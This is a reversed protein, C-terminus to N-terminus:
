RIIAEESDIIEGHEPTSRATAKSIFLGRETLKPPHGCFFVTRVPLRPANACDLAVHRTKAPEPVHLISSCRRKFKMNAKQFKKETDEKPQKKLM